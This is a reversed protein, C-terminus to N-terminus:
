DSVVDDACVARSVAVDEEVVLAFHPVDEMRVIRVFGDM